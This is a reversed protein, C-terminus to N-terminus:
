HIWTGGYYEEGSGNLVYYHGGLKNNAVGCADLAAGLGDFLGIKIQRYSSLPGSIAHDLTIKESKMMRYM